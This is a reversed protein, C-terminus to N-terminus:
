RDPAGPAARHHPFREHLLQEEAAARDLEGAARMEAIAAEWRKPDARFAPESAALPAQKDAASAAKAQAGDTEVSDATPQGRAAYATAPRPPPPAPPPEASLAGAGASAASQETVALNAPAPAFRAGQRSDNALAQAAREGAVEAETPGLDVMVPADGPVSETDPATVRANREEPAREAPATASAAPYAVERAVPQVSVVPELMREPSGFQMVVGFTLLVTAALAVPATWRPARYMRQERPAEIAERAQALVIRDLEAPPELSHDPDRSFLPKKGRLFSEFEDDPGTV